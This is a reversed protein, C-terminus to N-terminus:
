RIGTLVERSITATVSVVATATAQVLVALVGDALGAEPPGAAAAAGGVV